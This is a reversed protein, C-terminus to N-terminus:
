AYALRYGLMKVSSRAMSLLQEGPVARDDFRIWIDRDDVRVSQVGAVGALFSTLLAGNEENVAEGVRLHLDQM